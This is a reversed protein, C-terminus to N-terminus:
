DGICDWLGTEHDRSQSEPMPTWQAEDLGAKALDDDLIEAFRRIARPFHNDCYITKKQGDQELWFV